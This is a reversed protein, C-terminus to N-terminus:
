EDCLPGAEAQWTPPWSAFPKTTIPAASSWRSTTTRELGPDIKPVVNGSMVLHDRLRSARAKIM